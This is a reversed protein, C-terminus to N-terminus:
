RPVAVGLVAIDDRPVGDAADMAARVVADVLAEAGAGAARAAVARLDAEGFVERGNRRVETVGDTYLLM